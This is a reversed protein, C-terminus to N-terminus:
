EHAKARRASFPGLSVEPSGIREAVQKGQLIFGDGDEEEVKSCKIRNNEAESCQGSPTKLDFVSASKM